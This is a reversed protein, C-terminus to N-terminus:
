RQLTPLRGDGSTLAFADRSIGGFQAVVQCQSPTSVVSILKAKNKIVIEPVSDRGYIVCSLVAADAAVQARQSNIITGLSKSLGGVTLFIATIAVLVFLM